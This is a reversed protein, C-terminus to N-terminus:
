CKKVEITNCIASIIRDLKRDIYIKYTLMSLNCPPSSEMNVNRIEKQTPKQKHYAIETLMNYVTMLREIRDIDDINIDSKIVTSLIRALNNFDAETLSYTKDKYKSHSKILTQITKNL